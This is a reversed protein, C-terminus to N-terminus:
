LSYMYHVCMILDLGVFITYRFLLYILALVYFVCIFIEPFQNEELKDECSVNRIIFFTQQNDFIFGHCLIM